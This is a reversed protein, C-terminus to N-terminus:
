LRGMRRLLHIRAEVREAIRREVNCGWRLAILIVLFTTGIFFTLMTM